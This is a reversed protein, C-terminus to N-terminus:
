LRIEQAAQIAAKNLNRNRKGIIRLDWSVALNSSKRHDLRGSWPIVRRSRLAVRDPRQDSAIHM